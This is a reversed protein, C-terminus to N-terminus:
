QHDKGMVELFSKKTEDPIDLGEVWKKATIYDKEAWACAVSVLANNRADGEPLKLAWESAAVPDKITWICAVNALTENRAEGDSIMMAWESAAVPDTEVWKGLLDYYTDYDYDKNGLLKELEIRFNKDSGTEGPSVKLPRITISAKQNNPAPTTQESAPVPKAMDGTKGDTGSTDVKKLIVVTLVAWLVLLIFGILVKLKM